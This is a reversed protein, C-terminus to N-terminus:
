KNKKHYLSSIKDAIDEAVESKLKLDLNEVKNTNDIFTVKNTDHGFGAGEDRLSNLVILDLNKNKLKAKANKIENDTELAFGILIQRKQKIRGLEKLIDKTKKLSITLNDDQKKIKQKEPFEPTYDAVAASMIAINASPFASTCARFMENASTVHTINVNKLETNISVPGSVLEVNAGRESFEEAMAYGMHGSSHNGIFRVPDITEYTPGASILVKLNKFDKKKQFFNQLINLINEPEQMRGAGCLGSALEGEEPEILVNGFSKLKEINNSTTPHNFMDVDMAPAFFVPCKAALYTATLLNDALGNALKGMTNASVPALLYADAWNGLDIHSNWSGDSEDFFEFLVPHGTLTSLTLPTVFDRAADTLIVKVEAGEKILLRVLIPIKYAAISGTVGILIKKGKLM